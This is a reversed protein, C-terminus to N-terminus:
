DPKIAEVMYRIDFGGDNPKRIEIVFILSDDKPARIVKRVGYSTILPRKLRPTGVIYSKRTGGPGTKELNIHFSSVLTSGSGEIQQTLSARYSAGTQFDRFEIPTQEAREPAIYLPYGQQLFNIEFKATLANNQSLLQHLVGSGDQGPSIPQTHTLSVRGGPMFDNMSVDVVALDAWPLLTIAKVGYQGFVYVKGNPSFGLDVFSATDGAWLHLAGFVFVAVVLSFSKRQVM